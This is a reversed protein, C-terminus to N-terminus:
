GRGVVAYVAKIEDRLIYKEEPPNFQAVCIKDESQNLFRVIFVDGNKMEIACDRNIEPPRGPHIYILEGQFYRPEMTNSFIYIAFANGIGFQAPHRQVWDVVNSASFVSKKQSEGSAIGYVPVKSGGETSYPWSVIPVDSLGRRASPTDQKHRYEINTPAVSTSLNLRVGLYDEIMPIEEAMINRHGYLMRNVAAPNLGMREALGKQTLGTTTELIKRIHDHIRQTM